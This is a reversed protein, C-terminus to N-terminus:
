TPEWKMCLDHNECPRIIPQWATGDSRYIPAEEVDDDVITCQMSGSQLPWHTLKAPWCWFFYCCFMGLRAPILLGIAMVYVGPHSFLTCLSATDDISEDTSIFHLSPDMATSWTSISSILLFQHYTLWSIYSHDQELPGRFTAMNQLRSILYEDCQPKSHQSIYQYNASSNWLLTTSPFTPIYHHM